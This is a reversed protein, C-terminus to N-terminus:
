SADHSSNMGVLIDNKLVLESYLQETEKFYMLLVTICIEHSCLLASTLMKFM